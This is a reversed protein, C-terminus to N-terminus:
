IWREDECGIERLDVLINSDDERDLLHVSEIIYKKKAKM